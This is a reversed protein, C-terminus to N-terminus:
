PLHSPYELNSCANRIVITKIQFHSVKVSLDTGVEIRIVKGIEIHQYLVATTLVLRTLLMVRSIWM